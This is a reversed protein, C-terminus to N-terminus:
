TVFHVEEVTKVIRRNVRYCDSPSNQMLIISQVFLLIYVYFREDSSSLRSALKAHLKGGPRTETRTYLDSDLMEFSSSDRKGDSGLSRSLSLDYGCVFSM